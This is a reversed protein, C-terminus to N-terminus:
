GNSEEVNKIDVVIISHVKLDEPLNNTEEYSKIEEFLEGKEYVKARGLIKYQLDEQNEFYVNIFCNPNALVNEISKEMQINSLVIQDKTVRSPMVWICRPIGGNATAFVVKGLDLINKIQKKNLM